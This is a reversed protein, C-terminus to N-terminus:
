LYGRLKHGTQPHGQATMKEKLYNYGISVLPATIVVPVNKQKSDDNRRNQGQGNLSAGGINYLHHGAFGVSRM